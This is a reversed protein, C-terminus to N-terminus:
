TSQVSAHQCTSERMNAGGFCTTKLPVGPAGGIPVPGVNSWPIASSVATRDLSDCTPCIGVDGTIVVSRSVQAFVGVLKHGPREAVQDVSGVDVAAIRVALAALESGLITQGGLDQHPMEQCHRALSTMPRCVVATSSISPTTFDVQLHTVSSM